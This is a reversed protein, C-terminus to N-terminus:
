LETLNLSESIFSNSNHFSSPHVPTSTYAPMPLQVLNIQSNPNEANFFIQSIQMMIVSRINEPFKEIKKACCEFFLVEETKEPKSVSERRDTKYEDVLDALIAEMSNEELKKCTRKASRKELQKPKIQTSSM